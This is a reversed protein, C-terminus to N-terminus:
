PGSSTADAPLGSDATSEGAPAELFRNEFAELGMPVDEALDNRVRWIRGSQSSRAAMGVSPEPGALELWGLEQGDEAELVVRVMPPDLGLLALEAPASAAEIGTAELDRLAYVVDDVRLSDVPMSLERDPSWSRDDRVFGYSQGDRPFELRLRRVRADDLRLVQKERYAFLDEPVARFVRDELELLSSVGSSRLFVGGAERGLELEHVGTATEIEIRREAPALGYRRGEEPADVFGSARASALDQLLRRIRRDDAATELPAVIKWEQASGQASGSDAREARFVLGEPSRLSVRSVQGPDFRALRRDRLGDLEPALSRTRFRAVTFIRSPGRMVMVYRSAGFPTDGGLALELAPTEGESIRVTQRTEDLGFPALDEPPDEIVAESSLEALARIIEDVAAADAPFELPAELRWAGAADRALRVRGGGALPLELGRVSGAEIGLVLRAAAVEAVRQEAGRFEFWWVGAALILAVAALALNARLSM